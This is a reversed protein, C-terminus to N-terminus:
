RYWNATLYEIYRDMMAKPINPPLHNGVAFIVGKCKRAVEFTRDMSARVQDWTGFAMDRCDTFSGVLCHSSGFREAAWGFDVFPEFILGDAGAEVIEEAFETYDGDSCFLVKKGAARLPKWLEAYRPIIVKRYIDPHMFAGEAWVFDDHQIVVEVSTKAWAEMHHRTYRYFSDFVPEMRSVNAAGLLLMEWGFTAIAGSVITRYYGGATLQDPWARRANQVLQEYAQVQADFDPLGYEAVADFAWVEDVTEFPCRAPARRDSGDSAYVAHGMDTVRGRAGWNVHLGDNTGWLFDMGWFDYFRRHAEQSAPDLGTKERIYETHYSLSYDTHALRSTPRLYITDLALERSM